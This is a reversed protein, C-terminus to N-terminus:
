FLFPVAPSRNAFACNCSLVFLARARYASRAIGDPVCYRVRRHRFEGGPSHTRRAVSKPTTRTQAPASQTLWNTGKRKMGRQEKKPEAQGQREAEEGATLFPLPCSAFSHRLCLYLVLRFACASPLRVPCNWGPRLVKSPPTQARWIALSNSSRGIEAYDKDTGSCESHALENGKKENRKGKKVSGALQKERFV